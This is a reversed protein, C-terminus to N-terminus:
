PDTVCHVEAGSSWSYFRLHIHGDIARCLGKWPKPRQVRQDLCHHTGLALVCGIPENLEPLAFAFEFLSRHSARKERGSSRLGLLVAINESQQMVVQQM